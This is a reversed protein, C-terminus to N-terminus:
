HPKSTIPVKAVYLDGRSINGRVLPMNGNERQNGGQMALVGYTMLWKLNLYVSKRHRGLYSCRLATDQRPPREGNPGSSGVFPACDKSSLSKRPSEGGPGVPSIDEPSQSLGTQSTKTRVIIPSPNNRIPSTAM